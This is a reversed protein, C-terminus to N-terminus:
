IRNKPANAFEEDKRRRWRKILVVGIPLLVYFVISWAIMSSIGAIAPAKFGFILITLLTPLLLIAILCMLLVWAFFERGGVIAGIVMLITVIGVAALLTKLVNWKRSEFYSTTEAVVRVGQASCKNLLM